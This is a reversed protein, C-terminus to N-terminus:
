GGAGQRLSDLLATRAASMGRWGVTKFQESIGARGASARHTADLDRGFPGARVHTTTRDWAKGEISSGVDGHGEDAAGKADSRGDGPVNESHPGNKEPKQQDSPGTLDIPFTVEALNGASDRAIVTIMLTNPGADPQKGDGSTGGGVSGKMTADPAIRTFQGKAADFNLWKPLPLGNALRATVSVVDGGLQAKLKLLLGDFPLQAGDILPVDLNANMVYVANGGFAGGGFNGGTQEGTVNTVPGFGDNSQDRFSEYGGQGAYQIPSSIETSLGAFSGTIAVESTAPASSLNNQDTTQWAITVQGSQSQNSAFTVSALVAQYDQPTDAGTLTLVGLPANYSAHINTGATNATLTDGPAFGSSIAVTAGALNVGDYVAIGPDIPTSSGPAVRYVVNAGALATPTAHVDVTSTALTTNSRVGDNVTWTITRSPDTGDNSPNASSASFTVSRLAAQYDALTGAGTLTLVGVSSNYSASIGLGATDVSLTDGPLLGSSISVTAGTLLGASDPDSLVLGGDLTAAPGNQTFSATGSATVTPAVHVTTLASTATASVGNSTSGDTATWSITRATDSGGGTPDGNSPNFSYTISDLAAQYDAVTDKGSLTLVGTTADYSGIIAATNTFNLMDGALFSSSITVTASTLNGGSDVDGVTLAGDLTVPSGGGDFTASGGAAVTPPLHVIALSSTAATNSSVADSVVWSITRVTDTGSNTPDGNNPTFGYTVADLANQWQAATATAGASHLTLVGSVYAGAINGYSTASNNTFNLTDGSIYGTSITVTASDVIGYSDPLGITLGSDLTVASGGPNFTVSSGATVTPPEHVVTLASTAAASAGNSSSGDAVMWSITRATDSVSGTPDGNSPNFSYTISQLAAQYDALTDIGSLTLVGTTANYSGIIKATNTFNLMDGALFGSSITVTAGTLNGGSDVDGVTLASDLSVPSGGGDFTASGGATVTPAVHVTTLASTAAASAGNSTSGDTVAWSVTRATHSGGGTPDGNVPNFSYNVSDLAAQYDAVTDTGSLTLVGTTADFSGTIKATNTFNLMDGAIFGSSISVTAGTLNGSSDIDSVTLASDLAVPSGAGDFTASGGAAVTPALHVTTLASTAASSLGNSTSGDTVVWSITRATHSGGGTPDGNAPNVSYSVSDLAAQYDAVTDAGSLTLAGTTANYSGIIKATNTFNLMDGAIFGSSISVTAGTLNGGSDVDGVTLASDLEVPSGGGDFTASGGATVTPALHVTTLTSTAAASAGNSTSGDTVVWSITRATSGGGGTPDGNAPNVSYTISGLAAQYDALTDTGSLTLVGTTANYSGTIAATNTFSLTDGALFGSSITVTAGTLNGGSDIDGVTLAGDLTVPSDGGDFTASGGATVTPAVHVTTLTSTAAASVGNSTSSDTVVWSITRAAGGGGGTPDGNAPNVSYSISDLAAQYDALTDTGGLTLVGTLANYSGTIAATNTFNLTDGVLFGSSITVTAGTLNGGSDVDGVTLAGDLTVAAGGGDFTASGGATVTPAVHVTTLTSTAAASVGNSTSGDTVVWSITRATGGGGGTPDGNAPNVSYTISDLAAQYDALTDKGSLTLVGTTADYGGTINGTNTFNLTDGALFGSSITVTAGTLNGGSDIDGVTLAGDLPAASGGGDFTASGGATVTPTVHVTNLTSTVAASTKVADSVLWGITRSTDVGGNTPDGNAAFSYTISRLAAQYDAVTDSGTLTLVGSAASYSGTIAATNTFNLVDGALFGSGISVTASTLTPSAPDSVTITGDLPAASGGGTFTAAGGAAVVPGLVIEVASTATASAGNSSSGDNVQWDITRSGGSTATSSFTVSELATQYDAVTDTGTLTLVGMTANYAGIIHSTNIFNLADDGSVFGAGISVTASTLNGGSDADSVTLAGDLTVPSGGGNFTASGGATVTPAVHVLDLTTTVTASAGNSTSGDTVSWDITRTTHAGGGTPDGGNTFSYTISRLAAQYDAITETGTLTLVGTTASYSGTIGNQSTYNLADGAIFGSMSVTAGTLNGGSDVDTLTIGSDLLVASDGGDFTAPAGGTVVPPEHVVDLTSTATTSTLTGDTVSWDITRSTHSGGGTPDGSFSYTVSDLATQYDAVSAAGSLTLAGDGADYSGSIGNQGTFNLTDGSVFGSISVTAGTLTTASSDTVSLGSDLVAASGGGDYTATGGATVTPSSADLYTVATVSANLPFGMTSFSPTGAVDTYSVLGGNRDAVAFPGFEAASGGSTTLDYITTDAATLAPGVEIVQNTGGSYYGGASSIPDLTVAFSGDSLAVAQWIDDNSTITSGVNGLTIESGLVGSANTKEAALNVGDFFFGVFGGTSLGVFEPTGGSAGSSPLAQDTLVGTSTISTASDPIYAYYPINNGNDDSTAYQVFLNGEGDVAINYPSLGGYTGLGIEFSAGATGSNSFRQIVNTTVDGTSYAVVFGNNAADEGITGYENGVGLPQAITILGGVTTGTPSFIQVYYGPLNGNAGPDTVGGDSLNDGWYLVAFNGNTLAAVAAGGIYDASVSTGSPMPVSVLSAAGNNVIAVQLGTDAPGTGASTSYDNATTSLGVLVSEGGTLEAVGLVAAFNDTNSTISVSSDPGPDVVRAPTDTAGTQGVLLGDFSQLATLNAPLADPTPGTTADLTWDGGLATAGIPTTSAAVNRGTAQQLATLFGDGAAAVDCGYLDLQGNPALAKGIAALDGSYTSITSTTLIDTGIAMVDPAGHSIIDVSALGHVGQLDQAIQQLGDEAGNFVFVKVGPDIAAVIAQYDAIQSDIFVVQDGERLSGSKATTAREPSYAPPTAASDVAPGHYYDSAHHHHDAHHASAAAAGDYMLRPELLYIGSRRKRSKRGSASPSGFDGPGSVKNM